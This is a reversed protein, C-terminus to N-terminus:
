KFELKDTAGAMVSTKQRPSTRSHNFRDAEFASMGSLTDPTRIGGEGGNIRLAHFCHSETEALAAQTNLGLKRVHAVHLAVLEAFLKCYTKLSGSFSTKILEGIEDIGRNGWCLFEAIESLDRGCSSARPRLTGFVDWFECRCTASENDTQNAPIWHALVV